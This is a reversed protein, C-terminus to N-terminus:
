SIQPLSPVAGGNKVEARPPSLRGAKGGPISGGTGMSYSAPHVESGTQVNYLASFNRTRSPISHRGDLKYQKFSILVSALQHLGGTM